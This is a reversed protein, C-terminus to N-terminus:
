FKAVLSTTTTFDYNKFGSQAPLNDYMGLYAVKLSFVSNLISTLSAEGNVLYDKSQTFNPVYEIWLKYQVTESIKHNIENYFRAKNDFTNPAPQYRDEITYRYGLESFINKVDSRVYYYKMGADSNYRTKIGIFRNGEVIEGFTYSLHQSIEREYKGNVDWNRASVGNNTEGYIYHGGAKVQNFEWKYVNTTKLNTTQVESNGGTKVSALESENSYQAFANVCFFLFCLLILRM